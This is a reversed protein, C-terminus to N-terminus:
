PMPPKDCGGPGPLRGAGPGSSSLSDVVRELKEINKQLLAKKQGPLWMRRTARYTLEGELAAFALSQFMLTRTFVSLPAGREECVLEHLPAQAWADDGDIEEVHNPDSERLFTGLKEFAKYVRHEVSPKDGSFIKEAAMEFAAAIKLMDFSGMLM